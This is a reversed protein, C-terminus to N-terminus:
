NAHIIGELHRLKRLFFIYAKTTMSIPAIKILCDHNIRCYPMDNIQWVLSLPGGPENNLLNAM